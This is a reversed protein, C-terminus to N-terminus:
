ARRSQKVCAENNCFPVSEVDNESRKYQLKSNEYVALFALLHSNEEQLRVNHALLEKEVNDSDFKSVRRVRAVGADSLLLCVDFIIIFVLCHCNMKYNEYAIHHM